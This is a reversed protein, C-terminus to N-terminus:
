LGNTIAFHQLIPHSSRMMLPTPLFTSPFMPYKEIVLGAHVFGGFSTGEQAERAEKKSGERSGNKIHQNESKIWEDYVINYIVFPSPCNKPWNFSKTLKKNYTNSYKVTKTALTHVRSGWLVLISSWAAASFRLVAQTLSVDPPGPAGGSKPPGRPRPRWKWFTSVLRSSSLVASGRCICAFVRLHSSGFVAKPRAGDEPEARAAKGPVRRSAQHEQDGGELAPLKDLEAQWRESPERAWFGPHCLLATPSLLTMPTGYTTAAHLALDAFVEYNQSLEYLFKLSRKGLPVRAGSTRRSTRSTKKIVPGPKPSPVPQTCRWRARKMAQATGTAQGPHQEERARPAAREVAAQAGEQGM